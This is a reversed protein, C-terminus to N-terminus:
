SHVAFRSWLLHNFNRLKYSTNLLKQILFLCINQLNLEVIKEQLRNKYERDLPTVPDGVFCVELSIDKNIQKDTLLFSNEKQLGPSIEARHNQSM